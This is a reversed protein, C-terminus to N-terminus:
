FGPAVKRIKKPPQKFFFVRLFPGFLGRKITALFYAKKKKKPEGPVTVLNHNVVVLDQHKPAPGREFAVGEHLKGGEVQGGVAPAGDGGVSVGGDGELLGDQFLIGLGPPTVADDFQAVTLLLALLPCVTNWSLKEFGM